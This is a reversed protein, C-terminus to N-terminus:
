TEGFVRIPQGAPLSALLEEATRGLRPHRWRPAIECLPALVFRREHLRPHPLLLRPTACLRGQYDLLDLDLTRAANPEGRARGFRTEVALLRDLLPEPGLETRVAIVANVFWPQESAPVPESLHWQSRRMVEISIKPLEQLAAAATQLPSDYGSGALNSGIGILIMPRETSKRRAQRRIEGPYFERM